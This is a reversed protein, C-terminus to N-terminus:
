EDTQEELLEPNDYINGIVEMEYNDIAAIAIHTDNEYLEYIAGSSNYKIEYIRKRQFGYASLKVLDGEFIETDNKDKLGIYQMLEFRDSNENFYNILKFREIDSVPYWEDSLYPEYRDHEGARGLSWLAEETHIVAYVNEETIMRKTLKDYVRFKFTRM